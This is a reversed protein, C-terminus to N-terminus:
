IIGNFTCVDFFGIVTVEGDEVLKKAADVDSLTVAPPGSKKEVWSIIADATRGGQYEIPKGNRFFKLTPYGRVKVLCFQM